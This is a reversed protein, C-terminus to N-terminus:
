PRWRRVRVEVGTKYAPPSGGAGANGHLRPDPHHTHAQKVKFNRTPDAPHVASASAGRPKWRSASTHGGVCEETGPEPLACPDAKAGRGGIWPATDQGRASREPDGRRDPNPPRAAARALRGPGGTASGDPGASPRPSAAGARGGPPSARSGRVEPELGSEDRYRTIQRPASEKPRLLPSSALHQPGRRDPTCM